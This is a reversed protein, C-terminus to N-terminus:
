LRAHSRVDPKPPRRVCPSPRDRQDGVRNVWDPGLGLSFGAACCLKSKIITLGIYRRSKLSLPHLKSWVFRRSNM